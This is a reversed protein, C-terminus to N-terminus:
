SCEFIKELDGLEVNGEIWGWEKWKLCDILLSKLLLKAFGVVCHNYVCIFSYHLIVVGTYLLMLVVFTSDCQLM